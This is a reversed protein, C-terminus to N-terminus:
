KATERWPFYFIIINVIITIFNTSCAHRDARSYRHWVYCISYVARNARPHPTPYLAFTMTREYEHLLFIPLLSLNNASLQQTFLKVPIKLKPMSVSFSRYVFYLKLNGPKSISKSELLPWTHFCTWFIAHKPLRFTYETWSNCPTGRQSFVHLHRLSVTGQM